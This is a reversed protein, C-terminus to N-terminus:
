FVLFNIGIALAERDGLSGGFRITWGSEFALDFGVDVAFELDLADRPPDDGLYADLIVRPTLYPVFRVNDALLERGISAGLPFSVVSFDGVGFGGGAVWNLDLPFDESVRLLAGTADVGGFVALDESHDEAIGIRFGFREGPRWTTFVGIGAGETPDSLYVGWGGPTSPGVLLPSDWPVQGALSVPLCLLGAAITTSVTRM